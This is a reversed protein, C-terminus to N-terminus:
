TIMEYFSLIHKKLYVAITWLLHMCKWNQSSNYRFLVTYKFTFIGLYTMTRENLISHSIHLPAHTLQANLFTFYPLPSRIWFWTCVFIKNMKKVTLYWKPIEFWEVILRQWQQNGVTWKRGSPILWCLTTQDRVIYMHWIANVSIQRLM